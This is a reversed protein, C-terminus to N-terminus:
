RVHVRSSNASGNNTVGVVCVVPPDLSLTEVRCSSFGANSLMAEIEQAARESTEKTAGPCRPQSAIAIQGGPRLKGRLEMLRTLPDPWFGISNVSMIADLPAGLAPLNEASGCRLDVRGAHIAAANRRAAQRVMVMSHDVGYVLGDTALRSLAQIAVGPGFGIELVRDTPQVDLLSVVWLSRRRNSSRHAMVWGAMHGSLGHPRGFQGVLRRVVRQRVTMAVTQGEGEELM